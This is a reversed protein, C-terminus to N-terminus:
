EAGGPCIMRTVKYGDGKDEALEVVRGNRVMKALFSCLWAEDDPHMAYREGSALLKSEISYDTYFALWASEGFAWWKGDRLALLCAEEGRKSRRDIANYELIFSLM